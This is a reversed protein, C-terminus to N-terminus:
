SAHRFPKNEEIAVLGAAFGIFVPSAIAAVIAIGTAIFFTAWTIGGAFVMILMIILIFPSAKTIFKAILATIGFILSMVILM